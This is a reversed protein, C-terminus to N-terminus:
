VDSRVIELASGSLYRAFCEAASSWRPFRSARDRRTLRANVIPKGSETFKWGLRVYLGSEPHFLRHYSAQPTASTASTAM